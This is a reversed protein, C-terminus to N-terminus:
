EDGSRGTPETILSTDAPEARRGQPDLFPMRLAGGPMPVATGLSWPAPAIPAWKTGRLWKVSGSLYLVNAGANHRFEWDPRDELSLGGRYQYSGIHPGPPDGPRESQPLEPFRGADGATESPCRLVALDNLYPAALPAFDYHARPLFGDHDRAYCQLALGIQYLNAQCSSQRAKERAQTFVPFLIAALVTIIAIVAVLEVLTFGSQRRTSSGPRSM